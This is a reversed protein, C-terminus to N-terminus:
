ASATAAAMGALIETTSPMGRQYYAIKGDRDIGVVTRNVIKLLPIPMLADYAAAVKAGDDLLLPMRLAYREIFKKHDAATGPNVGFVAIGADQYRGYDDRVECLQKTCGPTSDKPYFILVVPSKGRFDALRVVNGQEDRLEFGPADQGIALM